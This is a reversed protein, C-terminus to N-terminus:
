FTARHKCWTEGKCFLRELVDENSSFSTEFTAKKERALIGYSEVLRV